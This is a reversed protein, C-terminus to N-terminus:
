SVCYVIIPKLSPVLIQITTSKECFIAKLSKALNEAFIARHLIGSKVGVDKKM